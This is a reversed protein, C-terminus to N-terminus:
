RSARYVATPLYTADGGIYRAALAELEDRLCRATDPRDFCDKPREVDKQRLWERAEDRALADEVAVDGAGVEPDVFMVPAAPRHDCTTFPALLLALAFTIAFWSSNRESTM